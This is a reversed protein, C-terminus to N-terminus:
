RSAMLVTKGLDDFQVSLKACVNSLSSCPRNSAAIWAFDPDSTQTRSRLSLSNIAHTLASTM